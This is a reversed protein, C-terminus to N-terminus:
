NGIGAYNLNTPYDIKNLRNIVSDKFIEYEGEYKALIPATPPLDISFPNVQQGNKWFRFCLHPGTALGTSGVYGIVQGQKVKTGSKIGKAIGSMHLYQTSYISNHKVKVYRGNGRSYSAAIITGDGVSKIPTGTPAAYDVGLHPKYRKQVPHYRRYSFRSSIRTYNIPNKLFQKRLSSGKEDFFDATGDQNFNVAFYDKQGHNFVAAKIKGIGISEGDVFDETYIVKFKDGKQIRYFDVSWAYIESLVNALHENINNDQMTEYLSSMIVGSASSEKTTIPKSGRFAVLTDASFDVVVYDVKNEQYIFYKCQSISDTSLLISYSNGQRIRRINFIDKKISSLQNIKEFPVNVEQLLDALFQNRKFRGEKIELSDINIGFLFASEQVAKTKNISSPKETKPTCYNNTVVL